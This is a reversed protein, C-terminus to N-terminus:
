SVTIYVFGIREKRLLVGLIIAFQNWQTFVTVKQKPYEEKWRKIMDM